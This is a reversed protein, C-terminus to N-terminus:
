RTEPIGGFPNGDFTNTPKNWPKLDVDDDDLQYDHDKGGGSTACSSLM